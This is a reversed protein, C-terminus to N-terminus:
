GIPNTDTKCGNNTEGYNRWDKVMRKGYPYPLLITFAHSNNPLVLLPDPLPNPTVLSEQLCFFLGQISRKTHSSSTGISMSSSGAVGTFL